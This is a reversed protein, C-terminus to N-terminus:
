AQWARTPKSRGQCAQAMPQHLPDEGIMAAGGGGGAWGERRAEERGCLDVKKREMNYFMWGGERQHSYTPLDLVIDEKM